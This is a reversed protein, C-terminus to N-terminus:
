KEQAILASVMQWAAAVPESWDSPRKQVFIEASPFLLNKMATNKWRFQSQSAPLLVATPVGLAAGFHAVANDVTVVADCCRLLAFVGELDWRNDLGSLEVRRDGLEVIDKEAEDDYQLSIVDVDIDSPIGAMIEALTMSRILGNVGAGGRWSIAVRPKKKAELINSIGQLRQVDPDFIPQSIRNSTRLMEPLFQVMLDGLPLSFDSQPLTEPMDHRNLFQWHPYRKEFVSILRMDLAVIVHKVRSALHEFFMSFMIEDGIGQEGWLFLVEQDLVQGSYLPASPQCWELHPFAEFRVGYRDLGVQLKNQALEAEALEFADGAIWEFELMHQLGNAVGEIDQLFLRLDAHVRAKVRSECSAFFEADLEAIKQQVDLGLLRYIPVLKMVYKKPEESKPLFQELLQAAEEYRKLGVLSASYNQLITENTPELVMLKKFLSNAKRYNGTENELSAKANLLVVDDEAPEGLAEVLASDM